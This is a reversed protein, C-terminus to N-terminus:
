SYLRLIKEARTKIRGILEDPADVRIQNGYNIIWTVLAESLAAKMSFSFTHDTVNKIFINKSFRDVVQELIAKDCTLRVEGIEGGHMGFLKDTYDSVDFYATYPSVESFPRVAQPLVTVGSIRDVRLHLLNDYKEYNGIVYYHDGQWTLAYPSITMAKDVKQITRDDSLRRVTYTFSIKKHETIAHHIQDINYYIEENECKGISSFYVQAFPKQHGSSGLLSQLKKILVASKQPTIFRATKVADTLLFIEPDEFERVGLFFGRPSSSRIIDYGFEELVSLDHYVSKREAP